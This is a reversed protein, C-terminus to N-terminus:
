ERSVEVYYNEDVKFEQIPESFAIASWEGSVHKLRINKGNVYVDIPMTFGNVVNSYKFSLKRGEVKYTFTPIMTTRLYQNFFPELNIRMRNDIYSEIQKSTVTQHYFQKNLGRLISRFQADNDIIQRLTHIINAGKDYIDDPASDHVGYDGSVLPHQNEINRRLGIVYESAATDGYFYNLFLAEAYTTFGEHVWLDTVDATTISNAWWEHASEHIIIFDFKMGWGTGSRDTGLYGNQFGNGYTVSSQHEMGLYPAQVLKYGDKYFPYPGFWYEFAELMRPVDRNFQRKAEQLNGEIVYYNCDLTGKLGDYQQSFHVYHGININVGYNNIPNGVFWYFTHTSDKHNVVKRLRGNSVDMLSDPVTVSILVSDPEDWTQDKCPWWISAGIGQCSSAIFPRGLSDTTWTIGGSWPPAISEHPKGGYFVEIINIANKEQEKKLNIFYSFGDKRYELKGGDQVINKIELPPQLEIQLVQYPKLVRYQISTSGKLTETEPFVEVDLHYYTVDWWARAPTNGGFLSDQHTFTSDQAYLSVSLYCIFSLLLYRLQM